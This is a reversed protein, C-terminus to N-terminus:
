SVNVEWSSLFLVSTYRSDWSANGTAGNLSLLEEQTSSCLTADLRRPERRPPKWSATERAVAVADSRPTESNATLTANSWGRLRHWLSKRLFTLREFRADFPTEGEGSHSIQAARHAAVGEGGRGWRTKCLNELSTLSKSKNPHLSALTSWSWRIM